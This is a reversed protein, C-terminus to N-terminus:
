TPAAAPNPFAAWAASTWCTVVQSTMLPSTALTPCTVVMADPLLIIVPDAATVGPFTGSIPCTVSMRAIVAAARCIASMRATVAAGRCTVSMRATMAAGRSAETRNTAAWKWAKRNIYLGKKQATTACCSVTRLPKWLLIFVATSRM